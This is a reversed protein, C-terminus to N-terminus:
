LTAGSDVRIKFGDFGVLPAGIANADAADQPFLPSLAEHRAHIGDVQQFREDRIMKSDFLLVPDSSIEFTIPWHSYRFAFRFALLKEFDNHSERRRLRTVDFFIDLHKRPLYQCGREFFDHAFIYHSTRQLQFVTFHQRHM